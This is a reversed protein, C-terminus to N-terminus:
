SDEPALVLACHGPLRWGDDETEVPPTGHGGYRADESSWLTRWRRGAPPALLPEPAPVLPQDAGYNVLLLRDDTAGFIRLLLSRPGLAVGHVREADQQAFVQDDRRLALLDRHLQWTEDRHRRESWDLKSAQFTEEATPDPVRRQSEPTALTPFQSLFKRRGAAVQAGLPAQHDAFYYFPRTSGLEQGQFLMPTPPALLTLAILARLDAPAVTSALRAGGSNAVQDHNELYTVFSQAGLDLAVTGRRQKQWSYRQGQYLFGWRIASVLEQAHGLYDSFYAENHGTLAVIASHHYDDNWLADLGYGGRSVPRAVKADQPENEAVLLTARAGGAERVRRAVAAVLHEPSADYIQQTADLRLGDFHFEDIWYAANEVFLERAPGANEGDFNLAAGWENAYRDTFYDASFRALYNGDPGVHNYVVDLIVGLGLGHATDVFRRLDDPRGYLRTPAWLDVGDYGWGFRGPFEALPMLEIVTVGLDRLDALREAAAAHTGATTFTGVHLEYIVQGRAGSGRWEGDSWAFARADVVESPGHPGEPQFRSAPDPLVKGDDDLQFGYRDGARLGRVLGSFYGGPEATLPASRAMEAGHRVAVGRARPAWVRLHTGGAADDPEAGIPYRRPTGSARARTM